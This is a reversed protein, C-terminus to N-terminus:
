KNKKLRYNKLFLLNAFIMVNYHISRWPRESSTLITIETYNKKLYRRSKKYFVDLFIAMYTFNQEVNSLLPNIPTKLLTVFCCVAVFQGVSKAIRTM